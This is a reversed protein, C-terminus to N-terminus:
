FIKIWSKVPSSRRYIQDLSQLVEECSPRDNSTEAVCRLALAFCESAGQLPYNDGLRPDMVEKVNKGNSQIQLAWGVINQDEDPLNPDYERRGTISELLVVGFDYIDNKLSLHCSTMYSPLPSSLIDLQFPYKSRNESGFYKEWGYKVLGFDGLKANYGLKESHLYTLGRAVGRMILVRTAWSLPKVIGHANTFLFHDLSKNPMYEYVLLCKHEDKCYGLLRIINPHDLQRSITLKTRSRSASAYSATLRNWAQHATTASSVIPQITETCSGLLASILTQDQRFWATYEPNPKNDPLLKTPASQTGNLYKFLDLGLLTSEVQKRWVPFNTATLKIPFHTTATVQILTNNESVTTSEPAM